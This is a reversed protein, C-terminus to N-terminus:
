EGHQPRAFTLGFEEALIPLKYNLWEEWTYRQANYGFSWDDHVDQLETFMDQYAYFEMPLIEFKDVLEAMHKEEMEDTYVADPIRCGVACMLGDMSRYACAGDNMAPRGQKYLHAVVADFEQQMTNM